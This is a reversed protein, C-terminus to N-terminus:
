RHYVRATCGVQGRGGGARSHRCPTLHPHFDVSSLRRCETRRVGGRPALNHQGGACRSNRLSNTQNHPLQRRLPLPTHPKPADASFPAVAVGLQAAAPGCPAGTGRSTARAAMAPLLDTGRSGPSSKTSPCVGPTRRLRGSEGSRSVMSFSSATGSCLRAVGSTRPHLAAPLSRAQDRADHRRRRMSVRAQSSAVSVRRLWEVSASWLLSAFQPHCPTLQVRCGNEARITLM